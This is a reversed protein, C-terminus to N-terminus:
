VISRIEEIYRSINEAHCVATGMVLVTAGAGTVLPATERDIGGDVQIEIMRKKLHTQNYDELIGTLKKIKELMSSIFKQGGFGPNVTMILVLDVMDLINEISSLPTSPNLAVGAKLGEEKIHELTRHLHTCTEVHVTILDAGSEIFADMIDEPNSVMLHVDFFLKSNKKISSVVQPGISINPVYHGDMIDLHLMEVGAQEIQALQRSLNFFDCNLISVSVKIKSNSKM